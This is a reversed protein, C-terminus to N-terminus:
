VNRSVAPPCISQLHAPPGLPAPVSTPHPLHAMGLPSCEQYHKSVLLVCWVGTPPNHSAGGGTQSKQHVLTQSGPSLGRAGM